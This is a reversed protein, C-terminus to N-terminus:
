SDLDEAPDGGQPASLEPKLCRQQEHEAKDEIKHQTAQSTDHHGGDRDIGLDMVGVEHHRVEMIHQDAARHKRQQAADIVPKGFEIAAQQIFPQPPDIEPHRHDAEVQGEKGHM